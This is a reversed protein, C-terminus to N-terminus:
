PKIVYVSNGCDFYRNWGNIFMNDWESLDEDFIELVSSLKNKQFMQRPYTTQYNKTYRYNPLSTHSYTFGLKSYINGTFLSIDCYSIISKPNYNNLFYKFIRSAGGLVSFGMKSCLRILEYEYKKNMRPKGFTMIQVLEDNYFLGIKVSSKSYGQIHNKNIFDKALKIDVEKVICKRAYIQQQKKLHRLIIDKVIEQKYKWQESTIQLLEVNYKKSLLHKNFHKYKNDMSKTRVNYECHNFLGNYEIGFNLEPIYIDIEKNEKNNDSVKLTKRDNRKVLGDFNNNVFNFVEKEEYSSEHRDPHMQGHLFRRANVIFEGYKKDIVVIDENLNTYKIKLFNCTEKYQEIKIFFEEEKMQSEHPVCKKCGIKDKNKINVYHNYYITECVCKIKLRESKCYEEYTSLLINNKTAVHEKIKNFQKLKSQKGREKNLKSLLNSVKHKYEKNNWRKQSTLSIKNRRCKECYINGKKVLIKDNCINCKYSFKQNFIKEVDIKSYGIKANNIQIIKIYQKLKNTTKYTWMGYHEIIEKRTLYQGKIISSTGVLTNSNNTNNLNIM